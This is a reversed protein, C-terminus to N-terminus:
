HSTQGNEVQQVTVRIRTGSGLNQHLFAAIDTYDVKARIEQGIEEFAVPGELVLAGLTAHFQKKRSDMDITVEHRIMMRLEKESWQKPATFGSGITFSRGRRDPDSVMM